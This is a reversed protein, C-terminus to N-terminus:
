QGLTWNMVVTIPTSVADASEGGTNILFRGDASVDYSAFGPMVRPTNFLQVPVGLQLEPKVEIPVALMQGEPSVYYLEAGDHSWRPRSGGATSVPWRRTSFPPDREPAYGRVFVERRGSDDSEYAIWDGDPSFQGFTEDATTTLFPIPEGSPTGDTAIPLIWLDQRRTPHHEDYILSRGDPSFDNAHKRERKGGM